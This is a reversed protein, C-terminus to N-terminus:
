VARELLAVVEGAAREALVVRWEEHGHAHREQEIPRHERRQELLRHAVRVGHDNRPEGAARRAGGEEHQEDGAVAAGEKRALAEVEDAFGLAPDADGAVPQRLVRVRRQEEREEGGGEAGGGVERGGRQLVEGGEIERVKGGAPVPRAPRHEDRCAGGGLEGRGEDEDEPREELRDELAVLRQARRHAVRREGEDGRSPPEVLREKPSLDEREGLLHTHMHAHADPMHMHTHM